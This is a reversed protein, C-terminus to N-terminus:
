SGSSADARFTCVELQIKLREVQGGFIVIVWAVARPIADVVLYTICSAAWVISLWLSWFHVQSRVPSNRFRLEVVLLPTIFIAAGLMGILLVRIARALKMFAMWLARGRKAKVGETEAKVDEDEDWDFEDSSNTATTDSDTHSDIQPPVHPPLTHEDTQGSPLDKTSM